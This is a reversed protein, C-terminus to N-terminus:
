AHGDGITTTIDIWFRTTLSTSARYVGIPRAKFYHGTSPPALPVCLVVRGPVPGVMLWDAPSQAPYFLPEGIYVDLADEPSYGHKYLHPRNGADIEFPDNPDLLDVNIRNRDM